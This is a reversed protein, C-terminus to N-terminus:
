IQTGRGGAGLSNQAREPTLEEGWEESPTGGVAAEAVGPHPVLRQHFEARDRRTAARLRRVGEPRPRPDGETRGALKLEVGPVQWGPATVM